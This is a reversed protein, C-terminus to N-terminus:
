DENGEDEEHEHSVIPLDRYCDLASKEESIIMTGAVKLFDFHAV